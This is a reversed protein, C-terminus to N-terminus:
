KYKLKDYLNQLKPFSGSTGWETPLVGGLGPNSNLNLIVLSGFAPPQGWEAPLGRTFQNGHLYLEQINAMAQKSNVWGRPLEGSLQNFQLALIQLLPMNDLLRPSLAGSLQNSFARLVSLSSLVLSDPWSGTLRNGDLRLLQLRPFANGKWPVAGSLSNNGLYLSQLSPFQGPNAWEVPLVGTFENYQLDLSTLLSLTSLAPPLTGSARVKCNDCALSSSLFLFYHFFYHSIPTLQISHM